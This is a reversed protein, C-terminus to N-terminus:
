PMMTDDPAACKPCPVSGQGGGVACYAGTTGDGTGVEGQHTLEYTAVPRDYLPSGPDPEYTYLCFAQKKAIMDDTLYASSRILGAFPGALEADLWTDGRHAVFNGRGSRIVGVCDDFSDRTAFIGEVRTYSPCGSQPVLDSLHPAVPLRGPIPIPKFVLADESAATDEQPSIQAACGAAFVVFPVISSLCRVAFTM